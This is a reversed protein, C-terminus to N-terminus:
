PRNEAAKREDYYRRWRSIVEDLDDLGGLCRQMTEPMLSETVYGPANTKDDHYLLIGGLHYAAETGFNLQCEMIAGTTVHPDTASVYHLERLALAVVRRVQEPTCGSEQAVREYIEGTM